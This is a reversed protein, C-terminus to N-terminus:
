ELSDLVHLNVFSTLTCTIIMIWVKKTRGFTITNIPGFLDFGTVEFPKLNPDVRDEPLPGLIPDLPKEAIHLFDKCQLAIQVVKEVTSQSTILDDM